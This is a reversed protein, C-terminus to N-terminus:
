ARVQVNRQEDFGMWCNENNKQHSSFVPDDTSNPNLKNSKVFWKGDVKFETDWPVQGFPVERLVENDTM